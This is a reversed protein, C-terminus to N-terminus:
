DSDKKKANSCKQESVKITKKQMIVKERHMEEIAKELHQFTSDLIQKSRNDSM